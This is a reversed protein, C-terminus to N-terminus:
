TLRTCILKFTATFRDPEDAQWQILDHQACLRLDIVETPDPIPTTWARTEFVRVFENGTLACAPIDFRFELAHEPGLGLEEQLERRAAAAYVEGGDVHGAVSTDWMGPETSKDLARRQVYIHDHADRVLIHVSRHKLGQAHIVDRRALAVPHNHADVVDLLEAAEQPRASQQPM